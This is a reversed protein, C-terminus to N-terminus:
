LTTNNKRFFNSEKETSFYRLLTKFNLSHPVSKVKKWERPSEYWFLSIEKRSGALLRSPSRSRRLANRFTSKNWKCPLWDSGQNKARFFMISMEWIERTGRAIREFPSFPPPSASWFTNSDNHGRVRFFNNTDLWTRLIKWCHQCVTGSSFQKM